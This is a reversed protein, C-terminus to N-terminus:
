ALVAFSLHSEPAVYWSAAGDSVFIDINMRLTLLRMWLVSM